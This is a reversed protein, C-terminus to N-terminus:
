DLRATALVEGQEDVVRMARASLLARDIGVAWINMRVDGYDWRGVEIDRGDATELLCRVAGPRARPRDIVVLAYPHEGDVLEISGTRTGDARVITGSRVVAGREDRDRGSVVAAVTTAASSWWPRRPSSGGSGRGPASARKAEAAGDTSCAHSSGRRPSTSRPSSCCGTASTSPQTSGPAAPEVRRRMRSCRRASRSPSM